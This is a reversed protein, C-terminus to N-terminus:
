RILGSYKDNSEVGQEKLIQEIGEKGVVVKWAELWQVCDVDRWGPSTYGAARALGLSRINNHIQKQEASKNNIDCWLYWQIMNGALERAEEQSWQIGPLFLPGGEWAVKSADGSFEFKAIVSKAVSKSDGAQALSGLYGAAIRRVNQDKASSMVTTLKDAGFALITPALSQQLQPVKQTVAIVEEPNAKSADKSLKEVIRMGIPRGLAPFQPILNAKEILGNVTRTTTVRAAAAWTRVIKKQSENAHVNLLYEDVDQGGIEVMAAIAWGRKAINEDTKVVKLLDDIMRDRNSENEKAFATISKIAQHATKSNELQNIMQDDNNSRTAITEGAFTTGGLMGFMVIVVVATKIASKPRRFVLTGLMGLLGLGILGRLGFRTNRHDAAIRREVDNWDIAGLKLVGEKKQGPGFKNADYNLNNNRSVPMKFEAFKLNESSIVARPFDGDVVTLTMEKLMDLGQKETKTREDALALANESDVEGGRLGFHEGIRLLEKEQEEHKLSLNGTSVALLDSAFLDKAIGNKPVPNRRAPLNKRQYEPIDKETGGIIRLPLLQTVNSYMQKGSIQRVVYEEPISRIKRPGDTLLYVVNRLEGDNFASLRMPVVLEDSKFRFGMGQVNGDFVSGTPLEAKVSRQGAKPDVGSKQGVKTKVAVFCWGAEVYDDTVKDMGDPYKYGNTDMWKKLVAASGAELVAVEYMGVAEQKLVTVSEKKSKFKLSDAAKATPAAGARGRMLRRIRLDIVVEPPDVANVLHEFVNDAVKRIEPPTPFPILMGFNDVKGSFGPRIVFSEVGDKHFVYTKQLGIRAIPSQNGTFIPPVMGCPDANVNSLMGICVILAAIIKLQTRKM